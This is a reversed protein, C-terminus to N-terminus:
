EPLDRYIAHSRLYGAVAAPLLGNSAPDAGGSRLMARIQSASIDVYVGPLLYFPATQGRRGQLLYERVEVGRRVASGVPEELLEVGEPLLASLKGLEEGPRSAVILSAAFPIEAAGHWARLNAFSDAGMLCFLRCDSGLEFQLQRLTELTFNPKGGPRPADALSVQFGCEQAIALRTMAVRHEFDASAGLPKLPQAGVPAFLVADLNLATM